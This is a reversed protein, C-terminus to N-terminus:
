RTGNTTPQVPSLPLHFVGKRIPPASSARSTSPSNLSALGVFSFCTKRASHKARTLNSPIQRTQATVTRGTNRHITTTTTTTTLTTPVPPPTTATATSSDLPGIQRLIRQELAKLRASMAPIGLYGGDPSPSPPPPPM